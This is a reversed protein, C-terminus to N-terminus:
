LACVFFIRLFYIYKNPKLFYAFFFFYQLVLKAFDFSKKKSRNLKLIM